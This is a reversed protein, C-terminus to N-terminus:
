MGLYKTGSIDTSDDLLLCFKTGSIDEKLKGVFHPMMVHNIIITCKTEHLSMEMGRKDDGFCKKVVDVLHDSTNM